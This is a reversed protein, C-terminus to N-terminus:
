RLEEDEPNFQPSTIILTRFNGELAHGTRKPVYVFEGKQVEHVNEGVYIKGEGELIYYAKQSRKNFIKEVDGEPHYGDVRSIVSDFNAQEPAQFLDTIKTNDDVFHSDGETFKLIKV